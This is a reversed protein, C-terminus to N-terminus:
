ETGELTWRELTTHTFGSTRALAWTAVSAGASRSAQIASMSFSFAAPASVGSHTPVAAHVWSCRNSLMRSESSPVSSYLLSNVGPAAQSVSATLDATLLYALARLKALVPPASSQGAAVTITM